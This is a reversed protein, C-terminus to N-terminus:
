KKAKRKLSRQTVRSREALIENTERPTYERIKRRKPTVVWKGNIIKHTEM